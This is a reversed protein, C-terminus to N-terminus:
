IRLVCVRMDDMRMHMRLLVHIIAVELQALAQDTLLRALNM